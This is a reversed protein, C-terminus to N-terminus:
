RIEVLAPPVLVPSGEPLAALFEVASRLSAALPPVRLPEGALTGRLAEQIQLALPKPPPYAVLAAEKSVLPKLTNVISEADIYRLPILRTVYYDRNPPRRGSQM